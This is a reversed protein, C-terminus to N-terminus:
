KDPLIYIRSMGNQPIMGSPYLQPPPPPPVGRPPSLFGPGHNPLSPPPPPRGQPRHPQIMPSIMASRQGGPHPPYIQPIYGQSNMSIYQPHSGVVPTSPPLDPRSSGSPVNFSTRRVEDRRKRKRDDMTCYMQFASEGERRVTNQNGTYWPKPSTYRQHGAKFCVTIEKLNM